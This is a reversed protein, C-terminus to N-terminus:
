WNSGNEINKNGENEFNNIKSHVVSATFVSEMEGAPAFVGHAGRGSGEGEREEKEYDREEDQCTRGEASDSEGRGGWRFSRM